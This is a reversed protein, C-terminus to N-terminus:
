LPYLSGRTEDICVGICFWFSLRPSFVVVPIMFVCSMWSLPVPFPLPSCTVHVTPSPLVNLVHHSPLFLALRLTHFPPLPSLCPQPFLTFPFSLFPSIPHIPSPPLSPLPSLCPSSFTYLSFSLFPSFPHIPLFSLSQLSPSLDLRTVSM